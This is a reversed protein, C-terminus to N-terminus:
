SGRSQRCQLAVLTKPAGSCYCVRCALWYPFPSRFAEANGLVFCQGRVYCMGCCTRLVGLRGSRWNQPLNASELECTARRENKPVNAVARHQMLVGSWLVYWELQGALSLPDSVAACQSGSVPKQCLDSPPQDAAGSFRGNALRVTPGSVRACSNGTECDGSSWSKPSRAINCIANPADIWSCTFRRVSWYSFSSVSVEAHRSRVGSKGCAVAPECRPKRVSKLARKLPGFSNFLITYAAAHEAPRSSARSVGEKGARSYGRNEDPINPSHAPHEARQPITQLPKLDGCNGM